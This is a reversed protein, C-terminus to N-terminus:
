ENVLVVKGVVKREGIMKIADKASEMPISKSIFPNIKEIAILKGIEIINKVNQQPEHSTFSGWFVGVIACGKLLALNLPIRPIEHPINIIEFIGHGEKIALLDVYNFGSRATQGAQCRM